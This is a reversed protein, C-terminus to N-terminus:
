NKVERKGTVLQPILLDRTKSLNRNEVTLKGILSNIPDTVLDYQALIKNSPEVFNCNLIDSRKIFLINTGKAFARMRDRFMSSRLLHYIFNYVYEKKLKVGFLNAGLIIKKGIDAPIIAPYGIVEKKQTVDHTCLVIDGINLYFREDSDIDYFKLHDYQFRTKTSVIGMTAIPIGTEALHSAKYSLGTRLDIIDGLKKVEWGEPIKGYETGSDILRVKEHGPFQFKVFWERYLREAMEELIKIRKENNEILDDYASLVSAIRTQTPLDPTPIEITEIRNLALKPQTSGGIRQKIQFQGVRSGLYYLIFDRDSNKQIATIKAANETLNAGDLQAPIKGVLGITGAISIYIDRDSITYRSVQRQAEASIYKM